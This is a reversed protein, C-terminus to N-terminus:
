HRVRRLLSCHASAERGRSCMLLLLPGEASNKVASAERFYGAAGNLRRREPYLSNKKEEGRELQVESMRSMEHLTKRQSYRCCCPANITNITITAALLFSRLHAGRNTLRHHPSEEARVLGRSLTKNRVHSQKTYLCGSKKQGATALFM